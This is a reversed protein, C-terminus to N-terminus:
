LASMCTIHSVFEESERGRLQISTYIYSYMKYVSVEKDSSIGLQLSVRAKLLAVIVQFSCM